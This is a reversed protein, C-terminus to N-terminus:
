RLVAIKSMKKVSEGGATAKIILVYVGNPVSDGQEDKGDWSVTDHYGAYDFLDWKKVLELNLSYILISIDADVSNQYLFRTSEKAPNFPNPANLIPSLQLISTQKLTVSSESHNKFIDDAELKFVYASKDAFTLQALNVNLTRGGEYTLAPDALTFKSDNISLALSNLSVSTNETVIIKISQTKSIFDNTIFPFTIRPGSIDRIPVEFFGTPANSPLVITHKIDQITFYYRINGTATPGPIKATQIKGSKTMKQTKQSATVNNTTIQFTISASPYFETDVDDSINFTIVMEKKIDLTPPKNHTANPTASDLSTIALYANPIGYGYFPDKGATGKDTATKTLVDFVDQRTMTSQAGILLGAIGAVQPTAQSTGTIQAYASSGNSVYTSWIARGPAALSAATGHNSFNAFSGDLETASIAMVGAYTAPIYTDNANVTISENGMAAVLVANQSLAYTVSNSVATDSGAGGFSMNIVRAGNKAAYTISGAIGASTFDGGGTSSQYGARLPMIPCSPATGAVGVGNNTQAGVIGAVHTGHGHFDSPDNDQTAFDEGPAAESGPVVIFDWGRIDDIFGNQDDDIGNDAIEGPNTWIKNRLDPHRWHVGTDIVAIPVTASGQGIDWATPTNTVAYFTQSTYYPDNPTFSAKYIYNPQAYEIQDSASFEQVLANVSVSQGLTLLYMNQVPSPPQAPEIISLRLSSVHGGMSQIDQLKYKNFIPDKQSIAASGPAPVSLPTKTKILIQNPVWERGSLLFVLLLWATKKLIKM